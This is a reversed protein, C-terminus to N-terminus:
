IRKAQVEVTIGCQMAERWRCKRFSSLCFVLSHDKNRRSCCTVTVETWPGRITKKRRKKRHDIKCVGAYTPDLTRFVFHLFLFRNAFGQPPKKEREEESPHKLKEGKQYLDHFSKKKKKSTKENKTNNNSNWSTVQWYCYFMCWQRDYWRVLLSSVLSLALSQYSSRDNIQRIAM